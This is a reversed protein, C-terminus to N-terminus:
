HEETIHELIVDEFYDTWKEEVHRYAIDDLAEWIWSGVPDRQRTDNGVDWRFVYASLLEATPDSGPYGSGDRYYRVMPEGPQCDAEIEVELISWGIEVTIVQTTKM